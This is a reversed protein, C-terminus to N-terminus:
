EVSIFVPNSYFWLDQWPNEGAPDQVPELERTNTGRLRLYVSKDALFTHTVTIFEGRRMWNGATYRREVHASPHTDTTKDQLPGTIDGVILDIRNVAPNDGHHNVGEPDRVTISVTIEQPGALHLEEGITASANGASAEVHIETVLDGTTVFIRGSRLGDMIGQYSKDSYVYTKSYEGPWFDGRGESYHIHSDSNATIWWRRGEGLMSDWFGGVIATMQDFGGLTPFADYSGRPGGILGLAQHGPAGAMGVAVEPAEDNWGRLEAPEDLGYVRLDSASRSPHNAIVLPKDAFGDMMRLADLMRSETNRAPDVPWSERSDFTSEIEQLYEREDHTHPIMVTSHDAGPSNLEMGYFQILDPMVERSLLLEPYAQEFNVKSHNPGGHDTAVMWSLGYYQGMLNNMPIPYIADGAIIPVPPSTDPEYGVSYRSHIHHDGALWQRDEDSVPLTGACGALLATATLLSLSSFTSYRM